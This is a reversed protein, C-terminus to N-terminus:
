LKLEYVIPEIKSYRQSKKPKIIVRKGIIAIDGIIGLDIISDMDKHLVMSDNNQVELLPHYKGDNYLRLYITAKYKSTIKEKFKILMNEGKQSEAIADDIMEEQAQSNSFFKLLVKKIADLLIIYDSDSIMKQFHEEDMYYDYYRYWPNYKDISRKAQMIGDEVFCTTFNIYLHDFEGLSFNLERLKMVVRKVVLNMMQNAFGLPHANNDINEITGRFIRIDSINKM